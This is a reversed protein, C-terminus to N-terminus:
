SGGLLAELRQFALWAPPVMFGILAAWLVALAARRAGRLLPRERKVIRFDADIVPGAPPRPDRVERLQIPRQM